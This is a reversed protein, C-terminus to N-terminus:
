AERRYEHLDQRQRFAHAPDMHEPGSHFSNQRRFHQFMGRDKRIAAPYKAPRQCVPNDCHHEKEREVKTADNSLLSLTDPLWEDATCKFAASEANHPIAGDPPSDSGTSTRESHLDGCQ